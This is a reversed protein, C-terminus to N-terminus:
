LWEFTVPWRIKFLEIALCIHCTKSSFNRFDKMEKKQIRHRYLNHLMFQFLRQLKEEILEQKVLRWTALMEFQFRTARNSILYKAYVSAQLRVPCLQSHVLFWNVKKLIESAQQTFTTRGINFNRTLYFQVKRQVYPISPINNDYIEITPYYKSIHAEIQHNNKYM